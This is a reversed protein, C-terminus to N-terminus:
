FIPQVEGFWSGSYRRLLSNLSAAPHRMNHILLANRDQKLLPAALSYDITNKVVLFANQVHNQKWIWWPLQWEGAKFRPSFVSLARRTRPRFPVQALGLRVSLPWVHHKPITIPHDRQGSYKQLRDLIQPWNELIAEPDGEGEDFLRTVVSFPCGKINGPESRCHTEPSTDLIQLTWNSGSRGFGGIVAYRNTFISV